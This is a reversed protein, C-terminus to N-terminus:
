RTGALESPPPVRTNARVMNEIDERTAAWTREGKLLAEVDFIVDWLPDMSGKKETLYRARYLWAQLEIDTM